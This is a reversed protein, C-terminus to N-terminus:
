FPTAEKSPTRGLKNIIPNNIHIEFSTHQKGNRDTWKREEGTQYDTAPKVSQLGEIHMIDGKSVAERSWIKYYQKSKSGDQRAYDESVTFVGNGVSEVTVYEIIVKAM